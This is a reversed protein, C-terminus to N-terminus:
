KPIDVVVRRNKARGAPDDAGAATENPAVPDAAGKGIATYHRAALGAQSRFWAIVAEARRRSLDLNYADDGKADTYGTVTVEGSGGARVLDATRRLNTEAAPTLMAKDFDFLTDAALEVRTGFDTQTSQFGSIDGTLASTEARLGSTTGIQRQPAAPAPSAATAGNEAPQQASQGCAAIAFAAIAAIPM